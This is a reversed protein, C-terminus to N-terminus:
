PKVPNTFVIAENTLKRMIIGGSLQVIVLWPAVWLPLLQLWGPLAMIELLCSAVLFWVTKSRYWIKVNPASPEPIPADIM